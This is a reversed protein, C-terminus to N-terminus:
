CRRIFYMIHTEPVYIFIRVLVLIPTVGAFLPPCVKKPYLLCLVLCINSTYVFGTQLQFRTSFNIWKSFKNNNYRHTNFTSDLSISGASILSM